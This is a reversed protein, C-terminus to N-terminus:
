DLIRPRRDARRAERVARAARAMPDRREPRGRRWAVYAAGAISLAASTLAGGIILPRGPPRQRGDVTSDAVDGM